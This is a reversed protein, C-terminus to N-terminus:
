GLSLYVDVEAERAVEEYPFLFCLQSTLSRVKRALSGSVSSYCANVAASRAQLLLGLGVIASVLGSQYKTSMDSADHWLKSPNMM